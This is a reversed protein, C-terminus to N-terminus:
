KDQFQDLGGKMNEIVKSIDKIIYSVRKQDIAEKVSRERTTISQDKSSKIEIFIIESVSGDSLGKFAIFDVPSGLHRFDKPNVGLEDSLLFPSFEEGVNGLITNISRKIADRRIKKEEELKWKTLLSEYKQEVSQEINKQLEKSYTEVWQNFKIKSNEEEYKKIRSIEIEFYLIIVIIVVALLIVVPELLDM